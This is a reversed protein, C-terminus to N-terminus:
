DDGVQSGVTKSHQKIQQFSRQSEKGGAPRIPVSRAQPSKVSSASSSSQQRDDQFMEAILEYQLHLQM